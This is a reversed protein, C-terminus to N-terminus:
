KGPTRVTKNLVPAHQWIPQQFGAVGALKSIGSHCHGIEQRWFLIAQM